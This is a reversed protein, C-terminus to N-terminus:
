RRDPDTLPMAALRAAIGEVDRLSGDAVAMVLDYADDDLPDLRHGNKALFVWTGLWGLRKNGDVLPHSTVLSHLLAAAMHLLGPYAPRGFLTAQPRHVAADLLGLDRVGIPGGVATRAIDLAQELTLHRIEEM